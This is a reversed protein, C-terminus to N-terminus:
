FMFYPSISSNRSVHAPFFLKISIKYLFLKDHIKEKLKKCAATSIRTKQLCTPESLSVRVDSKQQFM